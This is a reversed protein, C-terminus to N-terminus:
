HGFPFNLSLNQRDLLIKIRAFRVSRGQEPILYLTGHRQLLALDGGGPLLELEGLLVLDHLDHHFVLVVIIIIVVHNNNDTFCSSWPRCLASSSHSIYTLNLSLIQPFLPFSIAFCFVLYLDVIVSGIQVKNDTIRKKTNAVKNKKRKETLLEVLFVSSFFYILM